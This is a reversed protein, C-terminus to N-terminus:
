CTKRRCCCVCQQEHVGPMSPTSSLCTCPLTLPPPPLPPMPKPPVSFPLSPTHRMNLTTKVQRRDASDSIQPVADHMGVRCDLLCVFAAKIMCHKVKSKWTLKPTVYQCSYVPVANYMLVTVNHMLATRLFQMTYMLVQLFTASCVFAASCVLILCFM